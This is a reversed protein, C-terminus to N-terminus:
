PAKNHPVRVKGQRFIKLTPYGSISIGHKSHATADLKGLVVGSGKLQTAAEAYEPALNKCHGCWPAYFEVLALEQQTFSEFNADTLVTVDPDHVQSPASLGAALLSM